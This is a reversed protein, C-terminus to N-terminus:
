LCIEEENIATKTQDDDSIIVVLTYHASWEPSLPTCVPYDDFLIEYEEFEDLDQVITGEAGITPFPTDGSDYEPNQAIVVCRKNM